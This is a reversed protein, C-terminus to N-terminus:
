LLITVPIYVNGSNVYLYVASCFVGKCVTSLLEIVNRKRVMDFTTTSLTLICLVLISRCSPCPISYSTVSLASYLDLVDMLSIRRRRRETGHLFLLDMPPPLPKRFKPSQLPEFHTIDLALYASTNPWDLYQVM